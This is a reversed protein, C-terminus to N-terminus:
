NWGDHHPGAQPRQVKEWSPETPSKTNCAVWAGGIQRGPKQFRLTAHLLAVGEARKQNETPKCCM